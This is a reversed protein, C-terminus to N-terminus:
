AAGDGTTTEWADADDADWDAWAEAYSGPLGSVRLAQIAHHLAASRSGLAHESAYRDLFAVDESPVSVSLKM